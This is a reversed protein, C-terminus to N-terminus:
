NIINVFGGEAVELGSEEHIDLPAIGISKLILFGNETITFKSMPLGILGNRIADKVWITGSNLFITSDSYNGNSIATGLIGSMVINSNNEFYDRSNILAVGDNNNAISDLVVPGNNVFSASNNIGHREMHSIDIRGNNEFNANVSNTIGTKGDEISMFGENTYQADGESVFAFETNMIFLDGENKTSSTGQISIGVAVISNITCDKHNEFNGLIHFGNYSNSVTLSGFNLLSGNQEIRISHNPANAVNLSSSLLISLICHDNITVHLAEANSSILVNLNQSMTGGRIIASDIASPVGNDWNTATNWDTAGFTGIWTTKSAHAQALTILLLVQLFLIRSSSISNSM